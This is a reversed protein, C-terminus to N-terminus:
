RYAASIEGCTSKASNGTLGKALKWKRESRSIQFLLFAKSKKFPLSQVMKKLFKACAWQNLKRKIAYRFPKRLQITLEAQTRWLDLVRQEQHTQDDSRFPVEERKRLRDFPAWFDREEWPKFPVFTQDKFDVIHAIQTPAALLAAIFSWSSNCYLAEDCFSLGFLEILREDIAPPPPIVDQVAEFEPFSSRVSPDDTSIFIAPKQVTGNRSRLFRAYWEAPVQSFMSWAGVDYPQYDGRRIHVGTVHGYKQRVKVWWEDLAAKIEPKPTLLRQILARHALHAKTIHQFYGWFDVDRPPEIAELLLASDGASYVRMRPLECHGGMTFPVDFFSSAEFRPFVPGCGSRLAYLTLFMYQFLQNGFRGNTGLTQMSVQHRKPQAVLAFNTVHSSRVYVADGWTDHHPSKTAVRVFGADFLFLDLDEIQPCGAYLEAFNVECVIIDILKLTEQAGRLVHLEAGQVDIFLGNYGEALCNARVNDDLTETRVEICAVEKIKPYVIRLDALPLLSSSQSFSTVHFDQYGNSDSIAVNSVTIAANGSSALAQLAPILDGNAEILHIRKIGQEVLASVEQGTHAGVQIIGRIDIGFQKTIESISFISM